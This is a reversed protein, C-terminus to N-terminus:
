TQNSHYPPASASPKLQTPLLARFSSNSLSLACSLVLSQSLSHGLLTPQDSFSSVDPVHAVFYINKYFFDGLMSSLETEYNSMTM